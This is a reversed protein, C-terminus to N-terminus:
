GSVGASGAIGRWDSWGCQYRTRAYYIFNGTKSDQNMRKQIALRNFMKLSDPADTRVFWMTPNVLNTIIAPESAFVGKQKVANIDNDATGPRNPTNLIRSFIYENEPAGILRVPKCRKPVGRDDKMRRIQILVQELAAESFNSPTTLANSGTSGNWLPHATSLLPVGDGGNYGATAAYNLINAADIEKSYYLAAALERAYKPGLRQYLNDEQAEETIAFSLAVTKMVYRAVWAQAGHDEKYDEGEEKDPAAAFGVELVDEEFAKQTSEADLFAPYEDTYREMAMGFHANLGEELDLAFDTRKMVM